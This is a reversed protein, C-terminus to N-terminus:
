RRHDGSNRFCPHVPDPIDSVNIYQIACVVTGIGQGTRIEESGQITFPVFLHLGLNSILDVLAVLAFAIAVVVPAARATSVFVMAAVIIPIMIIMVISSVAVTSSVATSSVLAITSSTITAASIRSSAILGAAAVCLKIGLIAWEVVTSVLVIVANETETSLIETPISSVGKGLGAM